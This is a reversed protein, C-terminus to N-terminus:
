ELSAVVRRRQCRLAGPLHRKLARRVDMHIVLNKRGRGASRNRNVDFRSGQFKQYSTGHNGANLEIHTPRAGSPRAHLHGLPRLRAYGCGNFFGSPLHPGGVGRLLWRRLRPLDKMTRLVTTTRDHALRSLCDGVVLERGPGCSAYGRDITGPPASCHLDRSGDRERQHEADRQKNRVGDEVDTSPLRASVGPECPPLRATMGINARVDSESLSSGACVIRPVSTVSQPSAESSPPPLSADARGAFRRLGRHATTRQIFSVNYVDHDYHEVFEHMARPLHREGIPMVRNLCEEKISRVFREAHANCNPAQFPTQVVRVRSEELMQRVPASWKQHRDCILVRCRALAGEDTATM